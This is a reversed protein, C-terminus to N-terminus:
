KKATRRRIGKFYLRILFIVCMGALPESKNTSDTITQKLTKRWSPTNDDSNLDILQKPPVAPPGKLPEVDRITVTVPQQENVPISNM